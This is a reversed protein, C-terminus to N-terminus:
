LCLHPFLLFGVILRDVSLCTVDFIDREEEKLVGKGKRVLCCVPKWAKSWTGGEQYLVKPKVVPEHSPVCGSVGAEMCCIIFSDRKLLAYGLVYSGVKINHILHMVFTPIRFDLLM